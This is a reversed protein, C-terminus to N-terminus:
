QDIHGLSKKPAIHDRVLQKLIKIEPFRNQEERSWIIEDNIYIEFVGGTSPVLTLEDIEESFTNLLEQSIWSSRLLWGCQTCYKIKVVNM